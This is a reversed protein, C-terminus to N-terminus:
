CSTHWTDGGDIAERRWGKMQGKDAVIELERPCSIAHLYINGASGACNLRKYPLGRCFKVLDAIKADPYYCCCKASRNPLRLHKPLLLWDRVGWPYFCAPM